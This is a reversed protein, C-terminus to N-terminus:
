SSVKTIKITKTEIGTTVKLLYYGNKLESIDLQLQQENTGNSITKLQRGTLDLLVVEQVSEQSVINLIHSAPSPFVTIQNSSMQIIDSRGEVSQLGNEFNEGVFTRIESFPTEVQDGCDARVRWEYTDGAVIRRKVLLSNGSTKKIFRWDDDGMRRAQVLYNNINPIPTWELKVQRISTQTERLDIPTQHCPELDGQEVVTVTTFCVSQNGAEDTAWIEMTFNGTSELLRFQDEVDQSFSFILENSCDDYSGDNFLEAILPVAGAEDVEISLESKCIIVPPTIDEICESGSDFVVITSLCVSPNGAEDKVWLEVPYEGEEEFTRVNDEIDESFSFYLDYQSCGDYSGTDLDEAFVEVVGTATLLVSYNEACVAVPFAPDNRCSEASAFAVVQVYCVSQNGAEDTVWLELNYAGVAELVRITDSTNSSFSLSVDSCHDFSGADLFEPTLVFTTDQDLEVTVNSECLAIPPFTDNDCDQAFTQNGWLFILIFISVIKM